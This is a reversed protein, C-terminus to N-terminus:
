PLVTRLQRLQYYCDCSLHHLHLAFTLEQDLLVGLDCATLSFTYTPFKNALDDVKLKALQQRTSFWMFKTKAPNLRLRYSSMWTELRDLVHGMEWDTWFMVWKGIQGYCSGNGFRALVHGIEWDPWFM